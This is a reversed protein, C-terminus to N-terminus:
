IRVDGQETFTLTAHQRSVVPCQFLARDDTAVYKGANQASKRGINISETRDKYFRLAIPQQESWGDVRLVLGSIMTLRRIGALLVQINTGKVEGRGHTSNEVNDMPHTRRSRNILYSSVLLADSVQVMGKYSGACTEGDQRGDQTM